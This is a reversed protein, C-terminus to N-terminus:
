SPIQAPQTQNCVSQNLFQCSKNTFALSDFMQKSNKLFTIFGEHSYMLSPLLRKAARVCVTEGLRAKTERGNLCFYIVRCCSAKIQFCLPLVLMGGRDRREANLASSMNTSKLGRERLDEAAAPQLLWFTLPKTHARHRSLFMDPSLQSPSM